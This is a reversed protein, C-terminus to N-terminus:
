IRKCNKYPIQDSSTDGIEPILEDLHDTESVCATGLLEDLDSRPLEKRSDNEVTKLKENESRKFKTGTQTESSSKGSHM